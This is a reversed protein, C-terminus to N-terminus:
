PAPSHISYRILLSYASQATHISIGEVKLQIQVECDGTGTFLSHAAGGLLVYDTGGIACTSEGTRRVSVNAGQPWNIDNRSVRVAWTAGEANSIIVTALAPSSEIAPPLDTGAGGVLDSRTVIKSWQGTIDIDAASSTGICALALLCLRRRM